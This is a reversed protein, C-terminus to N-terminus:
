LISSAHRSSATPIMMHGLQERCVFSVDPCDDGVSISIGSTSRVSSSGRHQASEVGAAAHGGWAEGAAYSAVTALQGGGGRRARWRRSRGPKSGTRRKRRRMARLRRAGGESRRVLAKQKGEAEGKV